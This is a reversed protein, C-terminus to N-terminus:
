HDSRAHGETVVQTSVHLSNLKATVMSDVVVKLVPIPLFHRSTDVMLERWAFRPSDEILLPVGRIAYSVSDFDFQILQAVSELAHM